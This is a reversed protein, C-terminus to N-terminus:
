PRSGARKPAADVMVFLLRAPVAGPNSWTHTAGCQVVVEGPRLRVERGGLDLALEGILCAAYDITDTRHPPGAVAGPELDLIGVRTGSSPPSSGSLLSLGDGREDLSAPLAGTAWLHTFGVGAAVERGPPLVRDEAL